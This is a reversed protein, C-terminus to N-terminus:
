PQFITIFPYVRLILYGCLAFDTETVVYKHLFFVPVTCKNSLRSYDLECPFPNSVNCVYKSSDIKLLLKLNLM